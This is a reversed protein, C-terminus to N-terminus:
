PCTSPECPPPPPQRSLLCLSPRSSSGPTLPARRSRPPQRLGSPGPYVPMIGPHMSLYSLVLSPAQVRVSLRSLSRHFCAPPPLPQLSACMLHHLISQAGVAPIRPSKHLISRAVMCHVFIRCASEGAGLYPKPKTDQDLLSYMNPPKPPVRPPESLKFNRGDSIRLIIRTKTPYSIEVVQELEIRQFSSPGLDFNSALQWRSSSVHSNRNCAIHEANKSAHSL